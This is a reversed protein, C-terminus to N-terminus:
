KSYRVHVSSSFNTNIAFFQRMCLKLISSDAVYMYIYKILQHCKHVHATAIVGVHVPTTLLIRNANSENFVTFM